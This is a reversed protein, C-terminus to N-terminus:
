ETGRGGTDSPAVAEEVRYTVGESRGQDDTVVLRHEGPTPSLYLPRHPPGSGVLEGDRYWYLTKVGADAQALLPLRQDELPAFRRLRYPTREDPSVIKPGEGSGDALVSGACSRAVTPVASPPEQGRSRWWAVLEPPHAVYEKWTHGGVAQCGAPLLEGTAADALARRHLTCNTLRSRGPLSAAQRRRPCFPGPLQRSLECVELSGLRLGARKTPGTAAPELARFLDFLLPAAHKSGSIGQHASGDFSGVWVGITYRGSSGVAWADRHGYSTGTKWAVKPADRALRWSDPLDPREVELLMETVLWAAEPSLLQHGGLGEEELPASEDRRGDGRWQVPGFSGGGALGAYLGTLELLSVECAGLVLPLGYRFPAPDLSSLGGDRLLGHFRSLGVDNLLRVAPANLSRALAERAEVRGRYTGDYNEAVYGAFDTPVDLLISQPLIEGRDLALAYLFPKLTSGPSRLALAGNVQGAYEAEHFGASGVMARLSRSETEVIVAAANGIGEGRLRPVFRAVQEEALSQLRRDLTTEVTSRGLVSGRAERAAMRTFHPAEFPAARREAPVPQRLAEVIRERPFAGRDALQRLVRDRAQRAAEPSRVPDYAVPSRPLTTLLAIEGLSLQAPVKGFYFYSAAGVGELNGGYPALNLYLELIEGKSYMAELQLARFAERVKSGLTRPAPDAMRAVQMSLTSAGSVVRGARLNQVAARAVALPNVGPHRYFWRDESAVIAEVLEEPLEALTVPLRWRDDEALFFRLPEGDRDTVALSSPRHLGEEPFPFLRDLLAPLLLAAVLVAGAALLLRRHPGLRM